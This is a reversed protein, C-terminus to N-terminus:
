GFYRKGFVLDRVQDSAYHSYDDDRKHLWEMDMREYGEVVEKEVEKVGEKMRRVTQKSQFQRTNIGLNWLVKDKQERDMYQWNMHKELFEVDIWKRVQMDRGDIGENLRLYTESDEMVKAAKLYAEDVSLSGGEETQYWQFLDYCKDEIKAQYEELMAQREEQKKKEEEFNLIMGEM